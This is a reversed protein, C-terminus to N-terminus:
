FYNHLDKAIDELSSCDVENTLKLITIIKEYGTVTLKLQTIADKELHNYQFSGDIKEKSPALESMHNNEDFQYFSFDEEKNLVLWQTVLTSKKEAKALQDVVILREDGLKVSRKIVSGDSRQYVGAIWESNTVVLKASADHAWSFKNVQKIDDLGSIPMSHYCSSRYQNRKSTNYLYTQADATIFEGKNDLLILSLFDYHGHGFLPALGLSGYKFYVQLKENKFSILGCDSYLSKLKPKVMLTNLENTIFVRSFLVSSDSDGVRVLKNKVWFDACFSMADVLKLAKQKETSFYNQIFWTVEVNFLHYATSQEVGAGDNLTQYDFESLCKGLWYEKKKPAIVLACVTLGAYEFLTHNGRSSFKSIRNSILVYNVSFFTQSLRLLRDSIHGRHNIVCLAAYLNICRIACEMTSIYNVGKLPRNDDMWSELKQTISKQSTNQLSLVLLNNFRQSEWYMRIDFDSDLNLQKFFVNNDFPLTILPFEDPYLGLIQLKDALVTAGLQTSLTTVCLKQDSKRWGSQYKFCDKIYFLSESFRHLLEILSMKKLRSVYWKINKKM